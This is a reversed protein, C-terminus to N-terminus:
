VLCRVLPFQVVFSGFAVLGTSFVDTWPQLQLLLQLQLCESSEVSGLRTAMAATWRDM